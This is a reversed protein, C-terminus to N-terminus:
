DSHQWTFSHHWHLPPAVSQLDVMAEVEGAGQFAHWDDHAVGRSAARFSVVHGCHFPRWLCEFFHHPKAQYPSAHWDNYSVSQQCCLFDSLPWLCESLHHSAHWDNHAAGRSAACFSVVHGSVRPSTTLYVMFCKSLHHPIAHYHSAHWDDCAAGRSAACFSVLHGCISPSM